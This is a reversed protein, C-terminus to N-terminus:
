KWHGTIPIDDPNGFKAGYIVQDTDYGAGFFEQTGPRYVGIKDRGSGDWDGKIPRDGPSGFKVVHDASGSTNSNSLYFTQTDPDYAGITDKGTGGWNGVIPVWGPNGFKVAYKVTLNDSSLYFTQDSPRYVGISPRGTNDWDGVLPVDGAVGFSAQLYLNLNDSTLFFTQDSPRYVGVTDKGTSSWHATLPVDGPNGFTSVGVVSSGSGDAMYFTQDSARYVGVTSPSGAAPQGEAVVDLYDRDISISVGGWKETVDGAYQHVRQHNAWAGNPVNPENTDAAGNWRASFIVDPLNYGGGINRALDTIVADSSGYVGSKYGKAHLEATWASLYGLVGAPNVTSYEMDEYLVSGPGFGLAAAKAVADDAAAAGQSAPATIRTAQLGAYIPMFRWGAGAQQQVWSASLNPQPCVRSPGGIYIGVAGYPSNARWTNMTASDPAACTDFGKGTFTTLGGPLAAAATATPSVAEPASTHLRAPASAPFGAKELVTRVLARDTDYTATVRLGDTGASIEQATTNETAGQVGTEDPEVLLAETRGGQFHAPCDQRAGPTGLYLAHQDFHVCTSPAATLDVVKWDSPVAFHHGRYSVDRLGSSQGTGASATGSLTGCLAAAVTLAGIIRGLPPGSRHQESM